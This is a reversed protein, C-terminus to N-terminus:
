AEIVTKFDDPLLDQIVKGCGVCAFVGEQIPLYRTGKDGTLIGSVTRFMIAPVYGDGGCSCVLPRTDSPKVTIKFPKQPIIPDAM